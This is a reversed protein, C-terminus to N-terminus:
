GRPSSSSGSRYREPGFRQSRAPARGWGASLAKAPPSSVLAPAVSVVALVVSSPLYRRLAALRDGAPGALSFLAIAGVYAVVLAIGQIRTFAVLALGALALMQNLLSPARLSRAMVLLALVFTPYAANETMVVGTYALSPALVTMASVLISARSSVFMRALFYAPIAALSMVLGNIALAAHYADAPDDVLAWAPAIMTPYVEGWGFAPVGRIAPRDGSAISKALESYVVEDPLIWPSPVRLAIAARFLTSLSVIMLLALAPARVFSAAGVRGRVADPAGVAVPTEGAERPGTM